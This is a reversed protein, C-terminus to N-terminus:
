RSDELDLLRRIINYKKFRETMTENAPHIWLHHLTRNDGLLMESAGVAGFCLSEPCTATSFISCFNEETILPNVSLDIVSTNWEDIKPILQFYSGLPMTSITLGGNYIPYIAKSRIFWNELGQTRLVDIVKRKYAHRLFFQILCLTRVRVDIEADNAMQLWVEARKESFSSSEGPPLLMCFCFLENYELKRIDHYDFHM